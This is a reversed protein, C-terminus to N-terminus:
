SDSEGVVEPGVIKRHQVLRKEVDESIRNQLHWLRLESFSDEEQEELESETSHPFWASLVIESFM